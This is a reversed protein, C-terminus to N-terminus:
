PLRRSYHLEPWAQFLNQVSDAGLSSGFPVQSVLGSVPDWVIAQLTGLQTTDVLARRLEASNLTGYGELEVGLMGVSLDFWAWRNAVSDFVEVAAHEPSGLLDYEPASSLVGGLEVIRAPLGLSNCAHAFITAVTTSDVYDEGLVARRYQDFPAVQMADSPVGRAAWLADILRSGIARAQELPTEDARAASGWEAQAFHVDDISPTHPLWDEPLSSITRLDGPDFILIGRNTLGHAAYLESSYFRVTVVYERSAGDSGVARMGLTSWQTETSHANAIRIHIFGDTSSSISGDSPGESSSLVRYEFHDLEPLASTLELLMGYDGPLASLSKIAVDEVRPYIETENSYHERNLELGNKPFALMTDRGFFRRLDALHASREAPVTSQLRTSSDYDVALLVQFRAPDNLSALTESINLLRGGQPQMGLMYVTPDIWVWRNTMEDFVETTAHGEAIQVIYNSGISLTRGLAGIRAPIGLSKSALTFIEAINTCWVLGQGSTALLWQDFPRSRNMLDSPVGRYPELQDILIRALAQAKETPSSFGDVAAGWTAQAFSIDDNTPTGILWDEVRTSAAPIPMETIIVRAPGSRGHQTLWATNEFSLSFTEPGASGSPWLTVSTSQVEPLGTDSFAVSISDPADPSAVATGDSDFAPLASAFTIRAGIAGELRDISEVSIPEREPFLERDNSFLNFVQHDAKAQVVDLTWSLSTVSTGLAYVVVAYTAGDDAVTVPPTSYVPSNTNALRAGNRFWSFFLPPAGSATVGLTAPQGVAATTKGQQFQIQPAGSATADVRISVTGPGSTARGDSATFQFSDSGAFGPAPHYTFIRTGSDFDLTGNQPATITAYTLADDDVDTASLMGMLVGDSPVTATQSVAMPADNVPMVTIAVVAPASDTAGDNAVFRFLDPGNYDRNPKYTYAGTWAAVHVRGHRPAQVVKFTLAEGEVDTAVLEGDLTTDEDLTVAQDRGVPPDNVPNVTISVTAAASSAQGDSAVFTFSDPGNYDQAPQYSFAGSAPELTVAGHGPQAAVAYTLAPGDVDTAVLLGSFVTDEDLVIAQDQAVTPDNVPVVVLSVGAPFSVLEGDSAAFQFSDTGNWDHMPQYTFMGTAADLDLTGNAPPVVIQFTLVDMDPDAAQLWGTVSGDEPLELIGDALAAGVISTVSLAEPRYNVSTVVVTVTAPPSTQLDTEATYVFRDTGNFYPAPRYTFAGSRSDIELAGHSPGRVVTFSVKGGLLNSASLSGALVDNEAVKATFSAATPQAADGCAALLLAALPVLAVRRRRRRKRIESM